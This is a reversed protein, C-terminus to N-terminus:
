TVPNIRVEWKADYWGGEVLSTPGIYGPKRAPTYEAVLVAYPLSERLLRQFASAQWVPSDAFYLTLDAAHPAEALGATVAEAGVPWTLAKPLKAKIRTPIM